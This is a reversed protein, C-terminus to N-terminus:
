SVGQWRRRLENFRAELLQKPLVVQETRGEGILDGLESWVKVAVWLRRGESREHVGELVIKMGPLAPALHRAEVASGIGEEGDELFPLLILRGVLEMHKVMWYTAYVPHLAGLRPDDLGFNVTMEPTVRVELRAQHGPPIPKV